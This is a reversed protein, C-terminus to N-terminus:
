ALGSSSGWRAWDDPDHSVWISAEYQVALRKIRRISAVANSPDHDHPFPSESVLATHLHVADGTLLWSRHPLRVFVSLHGPTHGPMWLVVVSGDGFLDTDTPDLEAIRCRALRNIDEVRCYPDGGRHAYALEGPGVLVSANPFLHAAGVHDFHLHSLIVRTVADPEHGAARIQRDVRQEPTFRLQLRHAREDYVAVPDIAADPDLGADFLILGDRHEIVFAPVPIRIIHEDTLGSVLTSRRVAMTPADLPYLRVANGM